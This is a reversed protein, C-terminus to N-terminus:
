TVTLQRHGWFSISQYHGIEWSHEEVLRGGTGYEIEFGSPTRVYFSLMHDNTHRGLTFSLPINDEVCADHARGVSDLDPTELMFHHFQSQTSGPPQRLLAITHHRPNCRLFIADMGDATIHDSVRFGLQERYFRISEDFNATAIVAHGLGLTPSLFAPIGLSSVFPREDTTPGYYLEIRYGAPDTTHALGLVERDSLEEATGPTVEHGAARLRETLDAHVDADSVEFGLYDIGDSAAPRISIRHCREDTRFRLTDSSAKAAQQCGLRDVLLHQWAATDRAALGLYGLQKVYM